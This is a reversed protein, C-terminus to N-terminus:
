FKLFIKLFNKSYHILHFLAKKLVVGQSTVAIGYCAAHQLLFMM